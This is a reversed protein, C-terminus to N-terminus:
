NRREKVQQEAIFKLRRKATWRPPLTFGMLPHEVANVEAPTPLDPAFDSRVERFTPDGEADPMMMQWRNAESDTPTIVAAPMHGGWKKYMRIRWDLYIWEIDYEKTVLQRMAARFAKEQDEEPHTRGHSKHRRPDCMAVAAALEEGIVGM